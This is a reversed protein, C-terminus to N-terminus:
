EVDNGGFHNGENSYFFVALGPRLSRHADAGAMSVLKGGIIAVAGQRAARCVGQWNGRLLKCGCVTASGSRIGTWDCSEFVISLGRWGRVPCRGPNIEREQGPVRQLGTRRRDHYITAPLTLERRRPARPVACCMSNFLQLACTPKTRAAASLGVRRGLAPLAVRGCSSMRGWM